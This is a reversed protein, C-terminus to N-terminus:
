PETLLGQMAAFIEDASVTTSDFVGRVKGHRDILLFDASHVLTYAASDGQVPQATATLPMTMSVAGTQGVMVTDARVASGVKFGDQLLADITAQPGTLFRWITPDAGFRGAYDALVAPTDRRPDVTISVLAVRDGLRGKLARTQLAQMKPSLYIPCVDPCYTYIFDVLWVRGTLSTSSFSHGTEDTLTFAPADWLVPPRAAPWISCGALWAALLGGLVGLRLRAFRNM